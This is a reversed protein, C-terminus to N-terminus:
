ATAGSGPIGFSLAPILSGGVTGNNSSEAAIVGDINGKGFEDAKNSSRIAESYAVFNSVAAGAGPISGIFMG